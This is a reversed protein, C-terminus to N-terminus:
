HVAILNEAARFVNKDSDCHCTLCFKEDFMKKILDYHAQSIGHEGVPMVGKKVSEGCKICKYELVGIIRPMSRECKLTERIEKKTRM